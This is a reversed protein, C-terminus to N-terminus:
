DAQEGPALTFQFRLEYKKGNTVFGQGSLDYTLFSGLSAVGAWNKLVAQGRDGNLTNGQYADFSFTVQDAPRSRAYNDVALNIILPLSANSLGGGSIPQLRIEQREEILLPGSGRAVERRDELLAVEVMFNHPTKTAEYRIAGGPGPKLISIELPRAKGSPSTSRQEIISPTIEIKLRHEGGTRGFPLLVVAEDFSLELLQTQQDEEYLPLQRESSGYLRKTDLRTRVRLKDPGVLDTLFTAKMKFREDELNINFDTNPPGEIFSESIIKRESGKEEVTVIRFKIREVTGSFQRSQTRTVSGHDGSVFVTLLVAIMLLVRKTRM